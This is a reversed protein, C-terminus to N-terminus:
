FPRAFLMLNLNRNKLTEGVNAPSNIETAPFHPIAALTLYKRLVPRSFRDLLCPCKLGLRECFRVQFDGKMRSKENLMLLNKRMISSFKIM